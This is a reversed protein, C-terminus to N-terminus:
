LVKRFIVKDESPAYFERIRAEEDYGLKRYFARTQEFGELSSTEVILVREGRKRLLREIYGMLLTAVGRGQYSAHIAILYLNWTGVTMREPACYAVAIPGGGEDYTLWFGSAEDGDFYGAVMEGLMEPPFLDSSEIVTKLAPLDAPVVPRVHADEM